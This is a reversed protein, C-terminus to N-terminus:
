GSRALFPTALDVPPPRPDPGATVARTPWPRRWHPRVLAARGDDFRRVVAPDPPTGLPHPAPRDAGTGIAARIRALPVQGEVFARWWCAPHPLTPEVLTGDVDRLVAPM